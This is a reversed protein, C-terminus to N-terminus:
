FENEYDFKSQCEGSPNIYKQEQFTVVRWFFVSNEGTKDSHGEKKQPQKNRKNNKPQHKLDLDDKLFVFGMNRGFNDGTEFGDHIYLYYYQQEASNILTVVNMLLQMTWNRSQTVICMMILYILYINVAGLVSM